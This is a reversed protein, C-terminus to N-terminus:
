EYFKISKLMKEVKKIPVEDYEIDFYFLKKKDKSYFVLEAVVYTYTGGTKSDISEEENIAYFSNLGDIKGVVWEEVEEDEEKEKELEKVAFKYLDKIYEFDDDGKEIMEFAFDYDVDIYEFYDVENVTDEEIAEPVNPITIQIKQKDWKLVYDQASCFFTFLFAASTIFLRFKM